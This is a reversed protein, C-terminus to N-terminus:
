NLTKFFSQAFRRRFNKDRGVVAMARTMYGVPCSFMFAFSTTKDVALTVPM